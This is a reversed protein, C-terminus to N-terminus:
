GFPIWRFGLVLCTYVTSYHLQTAASQCNTQKTRAERKGASWSTFPSLFLLRALSPISGDVRPNHARYAVVAGGRQDFQPSVPISVIPM